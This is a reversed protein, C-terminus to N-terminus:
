LRGQGRIRYSPTPGTGAGTNRQTNQWGVPVTETVTYSGPIVGSFYFAGAGDTVTVVNVPNGSGTTGELTVVVGAVPPEGPDLVGNQNLDNFM